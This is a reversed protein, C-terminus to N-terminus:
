GRAADLTEHLDRWPNQSGAAGRKRCGPAHRFAEDAATLPQGVKCELCVVRGGVVVFCESWQMIGKSAEM